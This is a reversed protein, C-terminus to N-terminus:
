WAIYGGITCAILLYQVSSMAIWAWDFADHPGPRPQIIWDRVSDFLEVAAFDNPDRYFM